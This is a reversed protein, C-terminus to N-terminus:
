AAHRYVHSVAEYTEGIITGLNNSLYDMTYFLHTGSEDFDLIDVINPHRLAAMNLAETIFLERAKDAGVLDIFIPHPALRKLAVIKGIVPLEVKYVTGMGGKGLLGRIIYKGIKKM